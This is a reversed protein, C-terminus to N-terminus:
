KEAKEELRHEPLREAEIAPPLYCLVASVAVFYALILPKM